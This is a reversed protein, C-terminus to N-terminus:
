GNKKVTFPIHLKGNKSTLKEPLAYPKVVHPDPKGAARALDRRLKWKKKREATIDMMAQEITQNPVSVVFNNGNIEWITDKFDKDIQVIANISNQDLIIVTNAPLFSSPEESLTSTFEGFKALVQTQSNHIILEDADAAMKAAEILIDHPRPIGPLKKLEKTVTDPDIPLVGLITVNGDEDVTTILQALGPGIGARNMNIKINPINGVAEQWRPGLMQTIYEVPDADEADPNIRAPGPLIGSRQARLNAEAITGGGRERDSIWDLFQNATIGLSNAHYCINGYAGLRTSDFTWKDINGNQDIVAEGIAYKIPLLFENAAADGRVTVRNVEYEDRIRNDHIAQLSFAYIESLAVLAQGSARRETNVFTTYATRAAELQHRLRAPPLGM